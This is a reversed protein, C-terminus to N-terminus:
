TKEAASAAAAPAALYIESRWGAAVGYRYGGGTAGCYLGGSDRSIDLLGYHLGAVNLNTNVLSVHMPAAFINTTVIAHADSSHEDTQAEEGPFCKQGHEIYHRSM